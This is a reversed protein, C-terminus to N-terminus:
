RKLKSVSFGIEEMISMVESRLAQANDERLLGPLLLYGEEKYFKIEGASLQIKPVIDRIVTEPHM